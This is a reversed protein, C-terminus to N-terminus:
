RSVVHGPVAADRESALVHVAVIAASGTNTSVFTRTYAVRGEDVSCAAARATSVRNSPSPEVRHTLGWTSRSYRAATVRGWAVAGAKGMAVAIASTRFKRAAKST